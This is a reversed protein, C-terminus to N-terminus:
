TSTVAQWGAALYANLKNTTTNRIVMGEYPAQILDRNTTTYPPFGGALRLADEISCPTFIKDVMLGFQVTAM